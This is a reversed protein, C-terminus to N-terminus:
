QLADTSSGRWRTASCTATTWPTPSTSAAGSAPTSRTTSSRGLDPYVRPPGNVSRLELSTGEGLTLRITEVAPATLSAHGSVYESYPPNPILPSWGAQPQTRSNGDTRPRPSPRSPGGSASTGSSGGASSSSDTMAAHMRAFLRATPLLGMPAQELHRVLADGVMTASNSNYFQATATQEPTRLSGTAAGMLRVEEYDRAYATSSLEDPGDLRVPHRVVLPRLSGLWPVLMDTAPATPQWVGPAPPLTYHIAPDGYGDNSRRAIM